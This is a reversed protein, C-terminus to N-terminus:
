DRQKFVDQYAERMADEEGLGAEEYEFKEKWFEQWLPDYLCPELSSRLWDPIEPTFYGLNQYYRVRYKTLGTKKCLQEFTLSETM